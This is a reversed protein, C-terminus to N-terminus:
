DTGDSGAGSGGAPPIEAGPALTYLTVLPWDAADAQPRAPATAQTAPPERGPVPVDEAGVILGRERLRELAGIRPPRAGDAAALVDRSLVAPYGYSRALRLVERWNVWVHTIGRRRLADYVARPAANGAAAVALPNADFATAYVTGRRFYFAQAEGVLLLRSGEPLAAARDYPPAQRAIVEGPYPPVPHRGVHYPSRFQLYGNLLNIGIAAAFIAVAPVRGWPGHAPRVAGRRFPNAELRALRALVGGALLCVPVMAPLIFRSPMGRTFAAWVVLQVALVGALAAEWAPPGGRVSVMVAIGVLAAVVVIPGLWQSLLFNFAFLAARDPVEPPQWGEPEPVPPRPGAAHGNVWRAESEASWHGRGFLGTALPFVPNGTYLANRVLWPAFLVLTLAGALAVDRLRRRARLAVILMVALVPGAVLGVSLYKIACAAGLMAGVASASRWTPERLWERLWLVALVLYCVEALEVMALWSLYLALPVSALLGAAFRGRTDDDRRFALFVAAVAIVGFLGPFMKAAYMGAYAGGRLCMTVLFLMEVGLPYYSYCNHPLEGVRGADHFERPVQLHYEIVDYRDSLGVYGPPRAAGALWIAAAVAMLVWLLARGDHHGGPRWAELTKRAQWAAAAAGIGVIPWWLWTWLLGASGLVLMATSLMWLGTGCATVVRLGAPAAPCVKRVIPYAYGGAAVVILAALGGQTLAAYLAALWVYQEFGALHAFLLGGALLMFLVLRTQTLTGSPQVHDETM